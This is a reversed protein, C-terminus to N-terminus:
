RIKVFIMNSCFPYAIVIIKKQLDFLITGKKESWGYIYKQHM